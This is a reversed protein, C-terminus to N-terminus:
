ACHHCHGRLIVDTINGLRSSTFTSWDNLEDEPLCSVRNCDVCIFHPHPALRHNDTVVIEYRWTHDGLDLRRLLNIAVMDTLNRFVTAKDMQKTKLRKFVEAHTLPESSSRLVLLTAIRSRTVRLGADQIRGRAWNHTTVSRDM